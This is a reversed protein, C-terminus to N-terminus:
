IPQNQTRKNQELQERQEFREHMEDLRKEEESNLIKIHDVLENNVIVVDGVYNKVCNFFVSAFSSIHNPNWIPIKKHIVVDDCKQSEWNGEDDYTFRVDQLNSINGTLKINNFHRARIYNTSEGFVRTFSMVCEGTKLNQDYDFAYVSMDFSEHCFRTSFTITKNSENINTIGIIKEKQNLFQMVYPTSVTRVDTISASM